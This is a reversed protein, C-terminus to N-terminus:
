VLKRYRSFLSSNLLFYSVFWCIFDVEVTSSNIFQKFRFMLIKWPKLIENLLNKAEEKILYDQLIILASILIVLMISFCFKSLWSIQLYFESWVSCLRSFSLFSCVFLCVSLHLIVLKCVGNLQLHFYLLVSEFFSYKVIFVCFLAHLSVILLFLNKM